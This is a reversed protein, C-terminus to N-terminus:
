EGNAVTEQLAEFWDNDITYLEITSSDNLEVNQTKIGVNNDACLKFLQEGDIISINNNDKENIMRAKESVNGTTIILGRSGSLNGLNYYLDRDIRKMEAASIRITWMKAQILYKWKNGFEDTREAKVDVGNDGVQGTHEVNEFGLSELISKITIELGQGANPGRNTPSLDRIKEFFVKRTEQNYKRIAKKLSDIIGMMDSNSDEELTRLIIRGNESRRFLPNSSEINKIIKVYFSVYPINKKDEDDSYKNKYKRWLDKFGLEIPRGERNEEEKLFEYVEQPLNDWKRIRSM